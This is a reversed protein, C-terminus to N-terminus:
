RSYQRIQSLWHGTRPMECTVTMERVPQTKPCNGGVWEATAGDNNATLELKYNGSELKWSVGRPTEANIRTMLQSYRIKKKANKDEARSLLIMNAETKQFHCAQCLLQLNDFSDSSGDIHDIETGPEGCKCCKRRDRDIVEARIAPSLQRAKEDYGKDSLAFGFKIGIAEKVDVRDIRGDHSCARFYRVLKAEDRCRISCFLKATELAEFLKDCNLCIFEVPVAPLVLRKSPM